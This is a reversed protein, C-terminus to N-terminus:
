LTVRLNKQFSNCPSCLPSITFIVRFFNCLSCQTNKILLVRLARLLCFWNKYCMDKLEM